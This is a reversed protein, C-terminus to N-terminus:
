NEKDAGRYQLAVIQRLSTVHRSFSCTKHLLKKFIVIFLCVQKSIFFYVMGYILIRSLLCGDNLKIEEKKRGDKKFNHVKSSNFPCCSFRLMVLFAIFFQLYEM